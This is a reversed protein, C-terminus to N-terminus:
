CIVNYWITKNGARVDDSYWKVYETTSKQNSYLAMANISHVDAIRTNYSLVNDWTWAFARQKALYAQNGTRKDDDYYKETGDVDVFKYGDFYGERYYKYNPSFTTKFSLGKLPKFNM